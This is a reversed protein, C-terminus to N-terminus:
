IALGYPGAGVIAVNTEASMVAGDIGANFFPSDRAQSVDGVDAGRIARAVRDQQIHKRLFQHHRPLLLLRTRVRTSAIARTPVSVAYLRGGPVLHLDRGPLAGAAGGSERHGM